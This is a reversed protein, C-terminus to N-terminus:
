RGNDMVTYCEGAEVCTIEGPPSSNFGSVISRKGSFVACGVKARLCTAENAWFRAPRMGLEDARTPKDTLQVFTKIM